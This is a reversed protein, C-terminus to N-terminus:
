ANAFAPVTWEDRTLPMGSSEGPEAKVALVQHISTRGADFNIASGAMYLLWIRARAEGVVRVAEDWNAQLNTVWHRLTRAYHERLSHLDRVEFTAAQLASVVTGVEHLEGDPFVYREIFSHRDFSSPGWPRSIGHNLLRGGSRLLSHLRSFYEGLKALGVHEFMGISSIADYPGDTVDRYDQKRIEIRDTLGAEAVRKAALEAQRTSLTVGVGRVDYERAAHLLMGGWGCGVDLLRMGPRLGLKRCILEYKSAQAEDLGTDPTTFYACSYTLTPGLVLRYFDNSIDYHHAVAAADREKSHRRGKLRAEEPPVPPPPGLVGLRRAAKVADTWGGLGLAIQARHDQAAVVDRLNLAAYVDGEIDLDGAVYARGLGLENPAWLLRRLATPSHVVLTAPSQDPGLTSGDWCRMQLPPDAGLFARIVPRLTEAVTM